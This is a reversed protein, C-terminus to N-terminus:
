TCPFGRFTLGHRCNSAYQSAPPPLAIAPHCHSPVTATCHLGSGPHTHLWPKPRPPHAIHLLQRGVHAQLVISGAAQRVWVVVCQKSRERV